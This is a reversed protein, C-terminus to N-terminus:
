NPREANEVFSRVWATLQETSPISGEFQKPMESPKRRVDAPCGPAVSGTFVKEGLLKATRAEFVKGTIVYQVAPITHPIGQTDTYSCVAGTTKETTFCAVQQAVDISAPFWAEDGYWYYHQDRSATIVVTPRPTRDTRAAAEAVPTGDCVPWLKESVRHELELRWHTDRDAVAARWVVIGAIASVIVFAAVGFVPKKILSIGAAIFLMGVSGIACGQLADSPHFSARIAGWWVAYCGVALIPVGVGILWKGTTRNAVAIAVAM